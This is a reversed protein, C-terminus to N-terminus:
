HNTILHVQSIYSIGDISATLKVCENSPEQAYDKMGVNDNEVNGKMIWESKEKIGDLHGNKVYNGEMKEGELKTRKCTQYPLYGLVGATVSDLPMAPSPNNTEPNLMGKGVSAGREDCLLGSTKWHVQEPTCEFCLPCRKTPFGHCLDRGNIVNYYMDRMKQPSLPHKAILSNHCVDWQQIRKDHKPTVDFPLLWIGLSQDENQYYRRPLTSSLARVLNSSLIHLAGATYPPFKGLNYLLDRNKDKTDSIPPVDHWGFGSWYNDVPGLAGLESLITDLRIFIDHDTKLFFDFSQLAAWEVLACLKESLTNYDELVEVRLIDKYQRAEHDLEEELEMTQQDCEFNNMICYPMGIVFKHLM